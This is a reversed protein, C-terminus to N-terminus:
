NFLSLQDDAQSETLSDRWALLTLARRFATSDSLGSLEQLHGALSDISPASDSWLNPALQGVLSNSQLSKRVWQQERVSGPPLSLLEQGARTPIWRQGLQMIWGLVRAAHFTYRVHRQTLGTHKRLAEGEYGHQLADVMLRIKTLNDQQPIDLTAISYGM